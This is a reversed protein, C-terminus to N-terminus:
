VGIVSQAEGERSGGEGKAKVGWIEGDAVSQNKGFGRGLSRRWGRWEAKVGIIRHVGYERGRARIWWGGWQLGELVRVM